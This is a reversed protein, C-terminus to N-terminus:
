CTYCHTRITLSAYLRVPVKLFLEALPPSRSKREIALEALAENRESEVRAIDSRLRKLEAKAANFEDRLILEATRKRARAERKRLAEQARYEPGQKARSIRKREADSQRHRRVLSRTHRGRKPTGSPRGDARGRKM